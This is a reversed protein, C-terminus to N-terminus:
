VLGRFAKKINSQFASNKSRVPKAVTSSALTDLYSKDQAAGPPMLSGPSAGAALQDQGGFGTVNVNSTPDQGDKRLKVAPSTEELLQVKIEPQEDQYEEISLLGGQDIKFGSKKGGSALSAKSDSSKIKSIKVPTQNKDSQADRNARSSILHTSKM